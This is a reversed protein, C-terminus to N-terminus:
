DGLAGSGMTGDFEGNGDFFDSRSKSKRHRFRALDIM